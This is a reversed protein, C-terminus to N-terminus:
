KKNNGSILLYKNMQHLLIGILEFQLYPIDQKTKKWNTYSQNLIHENKIWIKLSEENLM